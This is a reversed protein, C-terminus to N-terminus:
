FHPHGKQNPSGAANATFRQIYIEYSFTKLTLFPLTKSRAIRSGAVLVAKQPM